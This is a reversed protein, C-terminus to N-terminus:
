MREMGLHAQPDRGSRNGPLSYHASSNSFVVSGASVTETLTVNTVDTSDDFRVDSGPVFQVPASEEFWNVDTGNWSASASGQWVQQGALGGIVCLSWVCGVGFSRLGPLRYTEKRM